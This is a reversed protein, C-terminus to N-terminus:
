LWGSMRYASVEDRDWTRQRRELDYVDGARRLYREQAASAWDDQHERRALATVWAGDRWVGLARAVRRSVNALTSALSYAISAGREGATPIAATGSTGAVRSTM